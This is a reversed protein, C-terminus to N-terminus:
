HACTGFLTTEEFNFAEGNAIQIDDIKLTYNAEAFGYEYLLSFRYCDKELCGYENYTQNMAYITSNEAAVTLDKDYLIHWSVENEDATSVTINYHHGCTPLKTPSSSPNLSPSSSPYSSPSPSAPCAEEGFEDTDLSEFNGGSVVLEGRYHVEYGGNGHKCCMGDGWADRMTIRYRSPAVVANTTYINNKVTYSGGSLIEKNEDCVDVIRWSTEQPYRDTKVSIQLEPNVTTPSQSPAESDCYGWTTTEKDGFEAGAAVVDNGFTVNYSGNGYNCCIGDGYSDRITISYRSPAVNIGEEYLKNKVDYQASSLIEKDGDCHDVISQIQWKHSQRGFGM